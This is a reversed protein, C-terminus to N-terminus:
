EGSALFYSPDMPGGDRAASRLVANHVRASYEKAEDDPHVMTPRRARLPSGGVGLNDEVRLAQPNAVVNRDYSVMEYASDRPDAGQFGVEFGERSFAPFKSDDALPTNSVDVKTFRGTVPSRNSFKNAM